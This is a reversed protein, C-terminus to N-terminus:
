FNFHVFDNVDRHIFLASSAASDTQRSYLQQPSGFDDVGDADGFGVMKNGDGHRVASKAVVTRWNDMGGVLIAPRRQLVKVPEYDVLAKVLRGFEPAQDPSSSSQDMYIVLQFTHRDAFNKQHYSTLQLELDQATVRQRANTASRNAIGM